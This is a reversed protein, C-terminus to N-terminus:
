DMRSIEYSGDPQIIAVWSHEYFRIIEDRLKTEALLRTPPDGPFSLNGNPLLTFGPFPDWGGAFKYQEDFQERAPRPDLEYLMMPITGLMDLTAQPHKMTWIMM